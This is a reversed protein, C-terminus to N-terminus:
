KDLHDCLVVCLALICAVLVSCLVKNWEQVDFCKDEVLWRVLEM